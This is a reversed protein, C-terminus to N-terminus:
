MKGYCEGGTERNPKGPMCYFAWLMDDTEAVSWCASPWADRFKSPLQSWIGFIDGTWIKNRIRCTKWRHSSKLLACVYRPDWCLAPVLPSQPTQFLQLSGVPAQVCATSCRCTVCCSTFTKYSLSRPPPSHTYFLALLNEGKPRDGEAGQDDRVAASEVVSFVASPPDLIHRLLHFNLSNLKYM